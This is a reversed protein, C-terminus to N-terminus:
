VQGPGVPTAGSAITAAAPHSENSTPQPQPEDVRSARGVIEGTAVRGDDRLESTSR